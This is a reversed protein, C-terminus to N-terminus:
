DAARPRAWGSVPAGADEALWVRQDVAIPGAFVTEAGGPYVVRIRDVRPAEGLGFHLTLSDQSGKGTGGQVHRVRTVGGAEVEVVAGLGARNAATGVVGVQLWHGEGAQNLLLEGAYLDLDGDHDVDATAMGWGNELPIAGRLADLRFSGDGVGWYFDTPRGDYTASIALDLVGDQDVDLLVPVSHTEQFRLGSPSAFPTAWAGGLDTFIGAGDNLLVQTKDSFDFFRPHALNAAVQDFDGDNDLDGWAVGITHGYFGSVERGALGRPAAVDVVRGGRNDYHFNRQLLYNNVFVDVDGDRDADIPAVGRSATRDTFFGLRGSVDQFTGDGRNLFVTDMYQRGEAWCNFNAVYLDLFGDADLDVWAAAASPRTVHRAADGCAEDDQRDIVGADAALEFRATVGRECVAHLLTDAHRLSESFLFLDLCGDNDYDGFVGGTASPAADLGYAASVDTFTGDGQNRWLARGLLLDDWGDGDFDVFSVHRAGRPAAGEPAPVFVREEPALTDIPEVLLEVRYHFPLPLSLGNFYRTGQFASVDPFNLAAQCDDFRGCPDDAEPNAMEQDMWWAAGDAESRHAVYLLGPQEVVVPEDLVYTTWAGDPDVDADVAVDGACRSGTWLPDPAWFDFGNYGFDAHLGLALPADDDVPRRAWQVRIGHVRTRGELAFRAAEHRPRAALLGNLTENGFRLAVASTTPAGLYARRTELGAPPAGGADDCVRTGGDPPGAEPSADIGADLGPSGDLGADERPETPGGSGCAAALCAALAGAALRLPM